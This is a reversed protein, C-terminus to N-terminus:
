TSGVATVASTANAHNPYFSADMKGTSGLGVEVCRVEANGASIEPCEYVSGGLSSVVTLGVVAYVGSRQFRNM